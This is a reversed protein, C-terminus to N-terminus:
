CNSVFIVTGQTSSLVRTFTKFLLSAIGLSMYFHCVNVTRSYAENYIIQEDNFNFNTM